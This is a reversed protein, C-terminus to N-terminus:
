NLPTIEIVPKATDGDSRKWTITVTRREGPLLNFYNDSYVAPLIQMGDANKLNLRLFPAITKGTNSLTVEARYGNATPTVVTRQSLQPPPLAAIDALTGGSDELYYDNLSM